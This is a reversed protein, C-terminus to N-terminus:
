IVLGNEWAALDEQRWGVARNGSLKVPRPFRGEKIQRYITAKSLGYMGIIQPLRFIRQGVEKNYVGKVM